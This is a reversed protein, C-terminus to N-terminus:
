VSINWFTFYPRTQPTTPDEIIANNYFTSNLRATFSNQIDTLM